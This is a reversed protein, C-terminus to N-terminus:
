YGRIRDALTNDSGARAAMGQNNQIINVNINTTNSTNGGGMGMMAGALFAETTRNNLIAGSMGPTFMERGGEGVLYSSGGIVAGGGAKRGEAEMPSGGGGIGVGNTAAGAENAADRVANFYLVMKATEAEIIDAATPMSANVTELFVASRLGAEDTVEALGTLDETASTTSEETIQAMGVFSEGALHSNGVIHNIALNSETDFTKFDDTTFGVQERWAPLEGTTMLAMQDSVFVVSDGAETNANTLDTAADRAELLATETASTDFNRFEVTDLDFFVADKNEANYTEVATAVAENIEQQTADSDVNLPLTITEGLGMNTTVEIEAGIQKISDLLAQAKELEGKNIFEMGAANIATNITADDVGRRAATEIAALAATADDSLKLDYTLQGASAQAVSGRIADAGQMNGLGQLINSIGLLFELILNNATSAFTNITNALGPAELAIELAEPLAMGGRLLETIIHIKETVEDLLGQLDVIKGIVETEFTRGLEAFAAPLNDNALNFLKEATGEMNELPTLDLGAFIDFGLDEAPTGFLETIATNRDAPSLGAAATKFGEFFEDFGIQGQNLLEAEDVLDLDQLIKYKTGTTDGLAENILIGTEKVTDGFKDANYTGAALSNVIGAVAQEGSLGMSRFNPSYEIITDLFDGARNAGNNFGTALIDAATEFDPALGNRVLQSQALIVKNFDEGGGVAVQFASLTDQELTQMDGTLNFVSASAAAIEERTKGTVSYIRNITTEDIEAGGTNAAFTSGAVQTDVEGSLGTVKSLLELAGPAYNIILEIHAARQINQLEDEIDEVGGTDATVTINPTAGDLAKLKGEATDLSSSDTQVNVSPSSGDLANKLSVAGELSTTDAQVTVKPSSGDLSKIDSVASDVDTTDVKIDIGGTKVKGAAKELKNLSDVADLVSRDFAESARRGMEMARTYKQMDITPDIVVLESM